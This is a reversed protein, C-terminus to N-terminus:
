SGFDFEDNVRVVFFSFASLLSLAVLWTLGIQANETVMLHGTIWVVFIVAWVLISALTMVWFLTKCFYHRMFIFIGPASAVVGTWFYDAWTAGHRNADAKVLFQGCYIAAIGLIIWVAGLVDFGWSRPLPEIEKVSGVAVIELMNKCRACERLGEANQYGCHKCFTLVMVEPGPEDAIQSNGIVAAVPQTQDLNTPPPPIPVPQTRDDTATDSVEVVEGTLTTRTLTKPDNPRDAEDPTEDGNSAEAAEIGFDGEFKILDEPRPPPAQPQQQKRSFLGAWVAPRAAEKGEETPEPSPGPVAVPQPESVPKPRLLKGCQWCNAQQEICEADCHPCNIRSLTSL